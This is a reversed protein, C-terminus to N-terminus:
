ESNKIRFESNNACDFEGGTLLKLAHPLVSKVCEWSQGCAKPSGPFNIILTNGRIVSVARSLMARDTFKASYARVAEAIGPAGREAVKLTAEPAVDRPNFGTSGTTLILNPRRRECLDILKQSLIDAEDPLVCYEIVDYGGAKLLEQLLAGSADHREGKACRDSLTIVAARLRKDKDETISLEDGISIEGGKIVKAFVGERPMICDGVKQYIACHTHCEKGIQTLELIVDGCVFRTGVPLAAFDIGSVIINEGFAGDDVDAGRRKFEAIKDASILSVQRHWEGAHADGEIGWNEKLVASQVRHKQTGRKQSICIAKIQGM